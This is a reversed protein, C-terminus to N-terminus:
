EGASPLHVVSVVLAFAGATHSVLMGNVEIIGESIWLIDMSNSYYPCSTVMEEHVPVLPLIAGTNPLSVTLTLRPVNIYGESVKAHLVSPATCVYAKCVCRLILFVGAEVTVSGFTMSRAEFSSLSIAQLMDVM